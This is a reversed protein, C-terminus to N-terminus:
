GAHSQELAAPSFDSTSAHGRRQGAYVSVSISKDRNREVNELDGKRVSVSLGVGESVEASADSAGIRQAVRLADEVLQQFDARSYAFGTSSSPLTKSSM